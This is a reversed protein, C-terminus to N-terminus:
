HKSGPPYTIRIREPPYLGGIAASITPAMIAPPVLCEECANELAEIRLSLTESADDVELAYGDAELAGAFTRLAETVQETSTTMPPGM